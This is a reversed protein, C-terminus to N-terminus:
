LPRYEGRSKSPQPQVNENMRALLKTTMTTLLEHRSPDGALDRTERADTHALMLSVATRLALLEGPTFSLPRKFHEGTWLFVRDNEIYADMIESSGFPGYSCNSLAELDRLLEAPRIQFEEALEALTVGPKQLLFPIMGLIRNLRDASAM